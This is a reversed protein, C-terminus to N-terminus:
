SLCHQICWTHILKPPGENVEQTCPPMPWAPAPVPPTPASPVSAPVSAPVSTPVSPPVSTAVSAQAPVEEPVPVVPVEAPVHVSPVIAPAAGASVSALVVEPVPPPPTAAPLHLTLLSGTASDSAGAIDSISECTRVPDMDGLTDAASADDHTGLHVNPEFISDDSAQSLVDLDDVAPVAPTSTDLDHHHNGQSEPVAPQPQAPMLSSAKRKRSARKAAASVKASPATISRRSPELCIGDDQFSGSDDNLQEQESPAHQGAAARSMLATYYQATQHPPTNPLVCLCKYYKACQMHYLTNVDYSAGDLLLIMYERSPLKNSNNFFVKESHAPGGADHSSPRTYPPLRRPKAPDTKQTWGQSRLELILELISCEEYALGPRVSFVHFPSQVQLSLQQSVLSLGTPSLYFGSGANTAVVLQCKNLVELCAHQEDDQVNPVFPQGRSSCAGCSALLQLTHEAVGQHVSHSQLVRLVHKANSLTIKSLGTSHIAWQKLGSMLESQKVNTSSLWLAVSVEHDPRGAGALNLSLTYRKKGNCTQVVDLTPLVQIALDTGALCGQIAVRHRAVATHVIRFFVEDDKVSNGSAGAAATSHHGCVM